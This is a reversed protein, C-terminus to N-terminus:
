QQGPGNLAPGTTDPGTLAPGTADPGTTDPATAAPLTSPAPTTSPTSSATPAPSTTPPPPVATTTAVTTVSGATRSPAVPAVSGSARRAPTPPPSATATQPVVTVTHTRVEGQFVQTVVTTAPVASPGAPSRPPDTQPPATTHEAVSDRRLDGDPQGSFLLRVAVLVLMCAAATAGVTLKTRSARRHVSADLAAHGDEIDVHSLEHDLVENAHRDDLRSNVLITREDPLWLGDVEDLDAFCITIGRDAALTEL